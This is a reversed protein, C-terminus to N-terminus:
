PHPANYNDEVSYTGKGDGSRTEAEVEARQRDPFSAVVLPSSNLGSLRTRHLVVDYQANRVGTIRKYM